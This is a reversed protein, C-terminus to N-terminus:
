KPYLVGWEIGKVNMYRNYKKRPTKDLLSGLVVYLALVVLNALALGFTSLGVLVFYSIYFNSAKPINQALLVPASAPDTRIQQIVSIAGSSFTTILFVIIFQFWFYWGQVMLQQEGTSAAGALKAFIRLFFPVLAMLLSIILSPLLGSVVGTIFSPIANLWSLWSLSELYYINSIAGALATLPSWLIILLTVLTTALAYSLERRWWPMSLNKWIIEEPATGITRPQMHKPKHYPLEQYASEAAQITNFEIFVAGITDVGDGVYHKNQLAEIKTQLDSVHERCYDLTDVKKGILPKIRHTPRKNEDAWQMPNDLRDGKKERKLWETNAAKLLKCEAGELQLATKQREDDLDELEKTDTAIWIHAVDHYM